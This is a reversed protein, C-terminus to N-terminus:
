VQIEGKLIKERYEIALIKNQEPTKSRDTFQKCVKKKISGDENRIILQNIRYGILKKKSDYQSSINTPLTNDETNARVRGIGSAIDPKPVPLKSNAKISKFKLLKAKYILAAQLHEHSELKLDKFEETPFDIKGSHNKIGSVSFGILKGKQKVQFINSPLKFKQLELVFDEFTSNTSKKREALLKENASKYKLIMDNLCQLILMKNEELTFVESTFKKSAYSRPGEGTPYAHIMYGVHKDQPNKASIVYKPLGENEEVTREKAPRRNGTQSKSIKDCVEKVFTGGSKGGTMSNYGNPALTNYKEIYYSELLNLYRLPFPINIVDLQICEFKQKLVLRLNKKFLIPDAKIKESFNDGFKRMAQDLKTNHRVSDGIHDSFKRKITDMINSLVEVAQGVYSKKEEKNTLMYIYGSQIKVLDFFLNYGKKSDLTKYKDIQELMYRVIFVLKDDFEKLVKVAFKSMTYYKIVEQILVKDSLTSDFISKEISNVDPALGIYRKKTLTNTLMYVIAKSKSM